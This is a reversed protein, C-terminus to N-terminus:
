GHVFVLMVLVLAGTFARAQQTKDPPRSESSAGQVAMQRALEWNIPGGQWSLLKELERFFPAGEGFGGSYITASRAGAAAGDRLMGAVVPSPVLVVMHDPKGPLSGLDPYCPMGEVTTASPNVPIADYGSARLRRYIANAPQKGSRSVGAVAFRRGRLFEAVPEPLPDPSM